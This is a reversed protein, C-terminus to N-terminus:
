YTLAIGLKSKPAAIMTNSWALMADLIPKSRKLRQQRREEFSLNQATYEQELEFLKSCSAVGQAAPISQVENEQSQAKIAEDFKRRAHAWCGVSISNEIKSYYAAGDTQLYGHFGQLFKRPDTQKDLM